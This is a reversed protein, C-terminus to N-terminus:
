PFLKSILMITLAIDGLASATGLLGPSSSGITTSGTVGASTPSQLLSQAAASQRYIPEEFLAQEAGIQEQEFGRQQTGAGILANARMFDMITGFNSNKVAEEQLRREIDYISGARSLEASRLASTVEAARQQREREGGYVGGARVLEAESLAAEDRAASTARAREAATLTSVDRAAGTARAREAETLGSIDRAVGSARALEAETLGAVDRAAGTARGLEAETLSSTALASAQQRVREADLTRGARELERAQTEMDALQAQLQLGREQQYINAQFGALANTSARGLERLAQEESLVSRSSGEGGASIFRDRINPVVDRNYREFIPDLINQRAGTMFPNLNPDLFRGSETERLGPTTAAIDYPTIYPNNGAYVGGAFDRLTPDIVDYPTEYDRLRGVVDYPNAYDRLRPDIIDAENAYGRLRPDVVDTESVFPRLLSVIDYTSAYPNNLYVGQSTDALTPDVVDYTRAFPNVALSGGSTTFLNLNRGMLEEIPPGGAGINQIDTLGLQLAEPIGAVRAGGYVPPQALIDKYYSQAREFGEKAEPLLSPPNPQSPGPSSQQRSSGGIVSGM